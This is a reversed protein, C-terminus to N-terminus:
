INIITISETATIAVNYVKTIGLNVFTVSSNHVHGHIAIDTNTEILVQEMDSSALYPLLKFREGKITKFTPSYHTLLIRYDADLSMLLRRLRNRKRKYYERVDEIHKYYWSTPRELVGRSGVIGIKRGSINLTISEDNLWIVEKYVSVFAKKKELHEDNGFVSIIYRPNLPRIINLVHRLAGVNGNEVMDGAFLLLDLGGSLKNVASRLIDLHKPSHVDSVAGIIIRGM